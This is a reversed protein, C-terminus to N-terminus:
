IGSFDWEWLCTIYYIVNSGFDTDSQLSLFVTDGADIINDGSDLSSTFDYVTLSSNTCGDGSQTGVVTPGTSFVVGTAQTELRWTLTHTSLNKNSKLFVKLLKGAVPATFPIKISTTTIAESDADTLSVYTKTTDQNAKYNYSMMQIQGTPRLSGAITTVSNAGLGVTVDIENDESGGTLILGAGMGADHNAVSLTLKGSEEGSTADHIEGLISAYYNFGPTGQDDYGGFRITGLDDGDEGAQISADFRKNIMTIFPGSVDDTNNIMQIAPKSATTNSLSMTHGLINLQDGDTGISEINPQTAQTTATNPALGAITAVTDAQGTLDGTIPGTVTVAGAFTALLDSDLTLAKEISNDGDNVYFELRTGNETGSWAADAFAQISAGQRITSSSNEAAQFAIKGLRHGDGLAAGDNSVLSLLAGADTASTQSSFVRCARGEASELIVRGDAKLILDSDTTGSGVTEITLDGTDSTTFTAYNAATALLKLQTDASQVVIGYNTDARHVYLDIGTAVSTGFTDGTVNIDMGKLSSTGLSASNVDLKIGIDNHAYTGSEPVIRDFDVHLATINEASANGQDVSRDIDITTFSVIGLDGGLTGIVVLGPLTDISSELADAFTVRTTADLADINSLTATGSSDTIIDTGAISIGFGTQFDIGGDDISLVYVGDPSFKMQGDNAVTSETYTKFSIAQALQTTTGQYNVLIRLREDDSAGISINPNADNVPQYFTVDKSFDVTNRFKSVQDWIHQGIWKM